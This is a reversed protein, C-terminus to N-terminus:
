KVLLILGCVFAGMEPHEATKASKIYYIIFENLDQRM